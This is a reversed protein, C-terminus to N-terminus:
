IAYILTKMYVQMFWDNSPSCTASCITDSKVIHVFYRLKMLKRDKEVTFHEQKVDGYAEIYVLWFIFYVDHKFTENENSYISTRHLNRKIFM